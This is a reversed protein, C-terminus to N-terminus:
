ITKPMQYIFSDIGSKFKYIMKLATEIDDCCDVFKKNTKDIIIFKGFRPVLDDKITLLLDYQEILEADQNLKSISFQHHLYKDLKSKKYKPSLKNFKSIEQM